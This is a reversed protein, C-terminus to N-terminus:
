QDTMCRGSADSAAYTTCWVEMMQLIKEKSKSEFGELANLLRQIGYDKVDADRTDHVINSWVLDRLCNWGSEM